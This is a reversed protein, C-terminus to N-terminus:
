YGEKAVGIVREPIVGIVRIVRIVRIVKVFILFVSGFCTLRIKRSTHIRLGLM